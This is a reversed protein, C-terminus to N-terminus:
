LWECFKHCSLFYVLIFQASKGVKLCFDSKKPEVLDVCRNFSTSIGRACDLLWMDCLVLKILPASKSGLKFNETTNKKQIMTCHLINRITSNGDSEPLNVVKFRGRNIEFKGEEPIKLVCYIQGPTQGVELCVLLYYKRM